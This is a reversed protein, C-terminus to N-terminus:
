KDLESQLVRTFTDVAKQESADFAPRMFPKANMKSTGYELFVAYYMIGFRHSNPVTISVTYRRGGRSGNQDRYYALQKISDRLRGTRVPAKLMVEDLIVRGAANAANELETGDLKRVMDEITRDLEDLGEVTQM